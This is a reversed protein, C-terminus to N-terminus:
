EEVEKIKKRFIAYLAFFIGSCILLFVLYVGLQALYLNFNNFLTIKIDFLVGIFDGVLRTAADRQFMFLYNCKFYENGTLGVLGNFITGILLIFGYYISFGIVFHKIDSKQLPEFVGLILCLLPVLLVNIHEVMYHINMCFLIGTDITSDCLIIAIIAGTVNIVVTFHFMKKSKLLLTTILFAGAINCLQFPYRTATIVGDTKFFTNYQFMLSISMILMLIYKDEYSKNKFILTLILCEIPILCIFIIHMPDGFNFTVNTFTGTIQQFTYIPMNSFLLAVFVAFFKGIEKKDKFKLLDLNNILVYVTILLELGMLIGFLFSRYVVNSLFPYLKEGFVTAYQHCLESTYYEMYDKYCIINVIITPLLIFSTVKVFSQKKYFVAFPLTIVAMANFWRIIAHFANHNEKLYNLCFEDQNYRIAFADPMFIDIFSIGVLVIVLIKIIKELNVNNFKDKFKSNFRYLFIFTLLLGLLITFIIYFM